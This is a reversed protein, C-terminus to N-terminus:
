SEFKFYHELNLQLAVVTRNPLQRDILAHNPEFRPGFGYSLNYQRNSGASYFTLSRLLDTLNIDVRMTTFARYSDLRRIFTSSIPINHNKKNM